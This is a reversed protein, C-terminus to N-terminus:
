KRSEAVSFFCQAQVRRRTAIQQQRLFVLLQKSRPRSPQTGRQVELSTLQFTAQLQWTKQEPLESQNGCPIASGLPAGRDKPFRSPLQFVKCSCEAADLEPQGAASSRALGGKERCWPALLKGRSGLGTRSFPQLQSCPSRQMVLVGYLFLAKTGSGVGNVKQGLKARSFVPKSGPLVPIKVGLPLDLLKPDMLV